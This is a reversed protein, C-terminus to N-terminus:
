SGVICGKRAPKAGFVPVKRGYVDSAQGLMPALFVNFVCGRCGLRKDQGKLARRTSHTPEATLQCDLGISGPSIHYSHCMKRVETMVISLIPNMIGFAAETLFQLVVITGLKCSFGRKRQTKCPSTAAATTAGHSKGM